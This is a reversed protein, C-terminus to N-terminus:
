TLLKYVSPYPEASNNVATQAELLEGYMPIKDKYAGYNERNRFLTVTDAQACLKPHIYSWGHFQFVLENKVNKSDFVLKRLGPSFSNATYKSADELVILSYTLKCLNRYVEDENDPTIIVRKKGSVLYPIKDHHILDFDSYAPNQYTDVILIKNPYSDIVQRAKYTKGTKRRGIM